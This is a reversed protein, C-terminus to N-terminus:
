AAIEVSSVSKLVKVSNEIQSDIWTDLDTHLAIIAEKTADNLMSLIMDKCMKFAEKQSDSDFEGQAKLDDVFTQNVVNCCKIAVDAAIDVLEYVLEVDALNKDNAIKDKLIKVMVPIVCAVVLYTLTEAFMIIIENWEPM